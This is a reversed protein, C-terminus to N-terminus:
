DKLSLVKEIFSTKSDTYAARNHEFQLALNRKLSAYEDRLDANECLRNRFNIYNKWLNGEYEVFHLHFLRPNGKGFYYRESIGNEGKYEYGISELPSICFSVNGLKKAGIVIDIVPKAILGEVSTSGIHQVDAIYECILGRLVKAEAAYIRQWDSNYEALKVIGQPLGIM